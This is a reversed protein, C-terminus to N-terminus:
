ARSARPGSLGGDAPRRAGPSPRTRRARGRGVRDKTRAARDERRRCCEPILGEVQVQGSGGMRSHGIHENKVRATIAPPEASSHVHKARNTIGPEIGDAEASAREEVALLRATLRQRDGLEGLVVLGDEIPRRDRQVQRRGVPDNQRSPRPPGAQRNQHTAPAMRWRVQSPDDRDAELCVLIEGDRALRIVVRVVLREHPVGRTEVHIRQDACTAGALHATM